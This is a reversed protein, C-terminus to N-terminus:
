PFHKIRNKDSVYCQSLCFNNYYKWQGLDSLTQICQIGLQFMLQVSFHDAKKNDTICDIELYKM